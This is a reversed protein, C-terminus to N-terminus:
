MKTIDCHLVCTDAGVKQSKKIKPKFNPQRKNQFQKISNKGSTTGFFQLFKPKSTRSGNYSYRQDVPAEMLWRDLSELDKSTSASSQSSSKIRIRKSTPIECQERLWSQRRVCSNASKKKRCSKCWKIKEKKWEQSCVRPKGGCANDTDAVSSM